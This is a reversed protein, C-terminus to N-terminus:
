MSEDEAGVGEKEQAELQEIVELIQEYDDEEDALFNKMSEQQHDKTLFPTIEAIYQKALALKDEAYTRSIEAITM